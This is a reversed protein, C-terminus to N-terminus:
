IQPDVNRVEVGLDETAIPRDFATPNEIATSTAANGVEPKSAIVALVENRQAVELRLVNHVQLM